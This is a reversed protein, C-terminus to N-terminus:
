KLDNCLHVPSHFVRPSAGTGDDDPGYAIYVNQCQRKNTM